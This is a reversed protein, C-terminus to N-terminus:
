EGELIFQNVFKTFSSVSKISSPIYNLNTRFFIILGIIEDQNDSKYLPFIMQSSYENTDNEFLKFCKVNLVCFLSSKDLYTHKWSDILDLIEFNLKTTTTTIKQEDKSSIELLRISELDTILISSSSSTISNKVYEQLKDTIQM